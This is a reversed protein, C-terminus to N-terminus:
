PQSHYPTNTNKNKFPPAFLPVYVARNTPLTLPTYSLPPPAIMALYQHHVAPDAERAAQIHAVFVHAAAVAVGPAVGVNPDLTRGPPNEYGRGRVGPEAGVRRVRGADCLEQRDIRRGAARM